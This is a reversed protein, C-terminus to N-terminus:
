WDWDVELEVTGWAATAFEAWPGNDSQGLEVLFQERSGEVGSDMEVIYLVDGCLIEEGNEFDVSIEGGNLSFYGVFQGDGAVGDQPGTVQEPDDKDNDCTAQGWPTYYVSDAWAVIVGGRDIGVCDIDAGPNGSQCKGDTLSPNSLDDLVKVWFWGSQDGVECPGVPDTGTDDGPDTYDYEEWSDDDEIVDEDESFDCRSVAFAFALVAVLSLFKKM